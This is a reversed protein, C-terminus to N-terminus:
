RGTLGLRDLEAKMRNSDYPKLLYGDCGSKLIETVEDRNSVATVMLIVARPTEPDSAREKSRVHRLVALGDLKPMMVDLCLLDYPQGEGLASDYAAIAEEGNVTVDVMGHQTLLGVLAKRSGFDDEAVLIRM